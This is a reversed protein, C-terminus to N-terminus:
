TLPFNWHCWRPEFVDGESKYRLAEVFQVVAREQQSKQTMAHETRIMLSITHLLDFLTVTSFGFLVGFIGTGKRPVSL